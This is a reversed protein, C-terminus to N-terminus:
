SFKVGGGNTAFKFIEVLENFKTYFYDDEAEALWRVSELDALVKKCTETGMFGECDSFWILDNLIKKPDNGRQHHGALKALTSRFSSYGSYSWSPGYERRNYKYIRGHELDNHRGEFESNVWIKVHGEAAEEGWRDLGEGEPLLQLESYGILLLGM